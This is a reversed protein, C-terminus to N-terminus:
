RIGEGFRLEYKAGRNSVGVRTFGHSQLIRKATHSSSVNLFIRAEKNSIMSSFLLYYDRLAQLHATKSRHDCSPCQWSGHKRNMSFHFCEPCQVGKIVHSTDIGYQKLIDQNRDNHAETLLMSLSELQSHSLLWKPYHRQLHKIKNPLLSGHIVNEYMKQGTRKLVSHNNGIVVLTEIPVSFADKQQIWTSLQAQQRSVQILPHLFAEEKEGDKRIFQTFDADFILTGSINKVELILFFSPSLILTDM